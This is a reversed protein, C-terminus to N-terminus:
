NLGRCPSTPLHPHTVRHIRSAAELPSFYGDGCRSNVIRFKLLLGCAAAREDAASSAWQDSLSDVKTAGDGCHCQAKASFRRCQSTKCILFELVQLVGRSTSIVFRRTAVHDRVMTCTGFNFKHLKQVLRFADPCLMARCIRLGHFSHSRM